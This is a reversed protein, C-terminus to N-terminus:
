GIHAVIVTINDDGGGQKAAEVLAECQDAPSKSTSLLGVITESAVLDYLGDSCILLRDGDSIPAALRDIELSKGSGVAQVLLHRQAHERAQAPTVQGMAVLRQVLTHDVTLQRMRGDRLHYLRSDGIHAILLRGPVVAAVTLTAGMGKLSPDNRANAYVHQDADEIGRALWKIFQEPREVLDEEFKEAAYRRLAEVATQSAVQGATEGGMGDSVVLLCPYRELQCSVPSVEDLSKRGALDWLLLSDENRDRKLGVDSLASLEIKM